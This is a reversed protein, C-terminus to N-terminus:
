LLSTITVERMSINCNSFKLWMFEDVIYNWNRSLITNAVDHVFIIVDYDKNWFLKIKFLGLTASKAPMMLIAAVNILIVRLSEFTLIILFQANLHLRYIYKKMYCFNSIEPSFISINQHCCFELAIDLSKYIKPITKLCFIVTGIKENHAIQLM